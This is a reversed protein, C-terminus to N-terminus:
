SNKNGNCHTPPSCFGCNRAGHIFTAANKSYPNNLVCISNVCYFWYLQRDPGFLNFLPCADLLAFLSKKKIEPIPNLVTCFM